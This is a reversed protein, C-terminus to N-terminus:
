SRRGITAGPWARVRIAAILIEKALECPTIKEM